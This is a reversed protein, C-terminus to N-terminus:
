ARVVWIDNVVDAEITISEGPKDMYSYTVGTIPDQYSVTEGGANTKVVTLTAGPCVGLALPSPLTGLDAAGVAMATTDVYLTLDSSQIDNDGQSFDTGVLAAIDTISPKTYSFGSNSLDLSM